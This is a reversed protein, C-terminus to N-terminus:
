YILEIMVMVTYGDVNLYYIIYIHESNTKKWKLYSAQFKINFDSGFIFASHQVKMLIWSVYCVNQM